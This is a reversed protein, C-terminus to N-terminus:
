LLCTQVSFCFLLGPLLAYPQFLSLLFILQLSCSKLCVVCNRLQFKLTASQLSQPSCLSNRCLLKLYFSWKDPLERCHTLNRFGCMCKKFWGKNRGHHDTQKCIRHQSRIPDMFQSSKPTGWQQCLQFNKDWMYIFHCEIEPTQISSKHVGSHHMQHSAARPNPM